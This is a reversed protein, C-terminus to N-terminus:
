CRQSETLRCPVSLDGTLEGRAGQRMVARNYRVRQAQTRGQHAARRRFIADRRTTPQDTPHELPASRREDGRPCTFYASQVMIMRWTPVTGTDGTTLPEPAVQTSPPGCPAQRSARAHRREASRARHNAEAPEGCRSRMPRSVISPSSGSRQGRGGRSAVTSAKVMM